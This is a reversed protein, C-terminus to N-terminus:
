ENPQSARASGCRFSNVISELEVLYRHMADDPAALWADVLYVRDQTPCFVARMIFPGRAPTRGTPNRWTGLLQYAVNGRHTTQTADVNALAVTQRMGFHEAAVQARWALLAEGQLGPPVPTKWTVTVQRVVSGSDAGADMSRRFVFVDNASSTEYDASVLVSFGSREGLSDALAQDFGAVMMEGIVWERYREELRARLSDLKSTVVPRADGEPLTLVTVQQPEAWVDDVEILAPPAAPAAEVGELAEQVWPDGPTGILLVQRARRQEPWDNQTPDSYVVEFAKRGGTAIFSPELKAKVRAEIRPWLDPHAAVVVDDPEGTSADRGGCAAATACAVLWLAGRASLTRSTL